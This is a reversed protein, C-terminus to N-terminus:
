SFVAALGALAPLYFGHSLSHRRFLQNPHMLQVVLIVAVGSHCPLHSTRGRTHAVVDLHLVGRLNHLICKGIRDSFLASGSTIPHNRRTKKKVIFSFFCIVQQM